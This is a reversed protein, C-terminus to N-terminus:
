HAASGSARELGCTLAEGPKGAAPKELAGMLSNAWAETIRVQVLRGTLGEPGSFNVKRHTRTRGALQGRRRGTPGEVLVEALSGVLARNHALTIEKQRDQLRILREKKVKPPVKGIMGAARTGPRDSYQFSYMGDFRIREVLEMTQEFDEDTEGPFGVIVDTTLALDPSEARLAEVLVQYDEPTYGRGMAKLIRASGSQVPLHLHECLPALESFAKILRPSLDKPHSTTFRLREIGPLEAAMKLLGAFDIPDSLGRGYSNVNQGLLTIEKVGQGLLDRAEALIDEPLRSVERGRVYPVVCYACFNDCGQMITLHAKVRRPGPALNPLPSLDYDFETYCVQKRGLRVQAALEPLRRLGHTGVVLDLYPARSFAARGKQQAVCGGLGLILDPNAEKLPRLRGLFSFIKQEAKERISCTNLFIFDAQEIDDTLEYGEGAMLRVVRDSDYDNMQCGFTAVYLRRANSEDVM